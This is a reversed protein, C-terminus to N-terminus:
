ETNGKAKHQEIFARVLEEPFRIYKGVRVHPITDKGGRRTREYIWSAPVNLVGALERVTLMKSFM